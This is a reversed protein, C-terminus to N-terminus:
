LWGPRFIRIFVKELSNIKGRYTLKKIEYGIQQKGKM